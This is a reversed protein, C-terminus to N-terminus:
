PSPLLLVNRLPITFEVVRYRYRRDDSTLAVAARVNGTGTGTFMEPITASVDEKELLASRLVLGVRVAVVQKMKDRSALMTAIDYGTADPAKWEDFKGDNNTDLGYLAHMEMVGDALAKATDTGDGQLLDYSFLTRNTDVGFLQFQVNNAAANGLVTFYASGSAALTALPAATPGATYYNGALTVLENGPADAFTSAVQEILCDDVGSQTVLAIDNPRLQVTNDLRLIDASAGGSIIPRPVDGAAGNGGMVVLIDSGGESRAKDILLPAVRLNGNNAAGGLFNAFPAPFASSTARPLIVPTGRKANLRCGFVGLDWSQTFGSGASRVARDILYAAYAGSQGMDNTATTSRKTSEGFTIASTVALTVVLGIVMAVLLEILTLGHQRAIVRLSQRRTM